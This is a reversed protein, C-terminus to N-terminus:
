DNADLHEIGWRLGPNERKKFSGFMLEDWILFTVPSPVSAM